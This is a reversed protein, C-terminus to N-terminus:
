PEMLIFANYRNNQGAISVAGETTTMKALPASRLLDSINRGVSPINAVRERGINAETGARNSRTAVVTVATLEAPKNTLVFDQKSNEGLPLFIDERTFTQFNVFSVAINYPGGPNVNAIDFKGEGRTTTTYKTGTPTHTAVVTAGVLPEGNDGKVFGTISSTTVQANLFQGALLALTLLTLIRKLM